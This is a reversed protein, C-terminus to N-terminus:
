RSYQPARRPMFANVMGEIAWWKSAAESVGALQRQLSDKENLAALLKNTEVVLAQGAMDLKDSLRGVDERLLRLVELRKHEDIEPAADGRAITRRTTTQDDLEM